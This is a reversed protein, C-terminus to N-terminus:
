VTGYNPFECTPPNHFRVRTRQSKQCGHCCFRMESSTYFKWYIYLYVIDFQAKYQPLLITFIHNSILIIEFIMWCNESHQWIQFSERRGEQVASMQLEEDEVGSGLVQRVFGFTQM